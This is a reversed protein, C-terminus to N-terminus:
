ALATHRRRLMGGVAGFGLIMLAWTAPEPVFARIDDTSGGLGGPGGTPPPLIPPPLIPPPVIPPPIVPAPGTAYLRAGSASQFALTFADLNTGADFRYFATVGGPTQPSPSNTGAGWHIGVWTLGNLLTSFDVLTSNLSLQPEVTSGNWNSLGVLGLGSTQAALDSPSNSLLNGAFFGSCLSAGPSLDSLGCAPLVVPAPTVGGGSNGGGNNGSNGSGSNGGGSNGGGSNGNSSGKGGALAHVPAAAVALGFALAMAAKAVSAPSNPKTSRSLLPPELEYTPVRAGWFPVAASPTM